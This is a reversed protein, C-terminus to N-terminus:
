RILQFEPLMIVGWLLDAVGQDNLHEGLISSAIAAEEPSPKRSLAMRYLSDTTHTASWDPHQERLHKAGQNLLGALIEGNSLQLAQLTDLEAPRTTVVQERPPRGLNRLLSDANVLSARIMVPTDGPRSVQAVPKEPATGTISWVADIFQEATMRKATPGRFVFEAADQQEDTVVCQSQYAHSTVILEITKKLDYGSDALHVALYDILDDSWPENQMVDVPEVIGRGMLRHWLRNVITRTLRGNDPHTMLSAFQALRESRPLSADINGLEPFLFAAQAMQGTPKDCRHIELPQDATIAALGYADTLKWHDVFSDHCSACKMNIGLFVQSTTQAFQLQQTQSANVNGRWKIGRIFGESEPTPNLLERVFADYPKNDLLSQYLWTTIQKRGGDIYGTGQYDNRLLDNWFTLWHDAYARNHALLERVLQQRKDPSTDALFADLQQPAPLLGVVDLSVRRLFTADNIPGPPKIDHATYYADVIRDVPNTRNDHPAPLAPRRPKLPAIYNSAKFSFGPEWSLGQDIWKRLLAIQDATLPDGEPPMRLDPDDNSVRHILESQSADGPAVVKSGLLAERTDFSVGAEYTGDAHCDACRSKLIPLIDHSFDVPEAAIGISCALSFALWLGASKM